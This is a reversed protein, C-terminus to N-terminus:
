KDEEYAYEWFFNFYRDDTNRDIEQAFYDAVFNENSGNYILCAWGVESADDDYASLAEFIELFTQGSDLIDDILLVQDGDALLTRLWCLDDKQLGDRTQWTFWDHKIGLRHGLDSALAVGGRAIGVILDYHIGSARIQEELKDLDKRYECFTYEYENM